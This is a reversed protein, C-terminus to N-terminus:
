RVFEDLRQQEKARQHQQYEDETPYSAFEADLVASAGQPGPGVEDFTGDIKRRRYMARKAELLSAAEEDDRAVEAGIIRVKVHPKKDEGDAHGTYSTSAFEVIAVVISGPAEFLGRRQDRTLAVELFGPSSDVKVEPVQDKALKPM